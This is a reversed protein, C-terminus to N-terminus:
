KGITWSLNPKNLLRNLLPIISICVSAMVAALIYPVSIGFIDEVVIRCMTLLIWHTVLWVMSDKGIRAIYSNRLPIIDSAIRVLNNVVIIAVFYSIFWYPYTGSILDNDIFSVRTPNFIM